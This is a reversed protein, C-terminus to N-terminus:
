WPRKTEGGVIDMEVEGDVDEATAAADGGGVGELRFSLV